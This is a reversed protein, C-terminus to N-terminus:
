KESSNNKSSVFSVIGALGLLGAAGNINGCAACIACISCAACAEYAEQSPAYLNSDLAPKVANLLKADADLSLNAENLLENITKEGKQPNAKADIAIEVMKSFFLDFEEKNLYNVNKQEM